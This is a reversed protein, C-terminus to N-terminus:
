RQAGIRVAAQRVARGAALDTLEHRHPRRRMSM